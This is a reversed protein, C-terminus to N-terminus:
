VRWLDEEKVNINRRMQKGSAYISNTQKYKVQMM